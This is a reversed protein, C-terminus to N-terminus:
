EKPTCTLTVQYTKDIQIVCQTVTTSRGTDQLDYTLSASGDDNTKFDPPNMEPHWAEADQHQTVLAQDERAHFMSIMGALSRPDQKTKLVDIHKIFDQISETSNKKIVGNRAHVVFSPSIEREVHASLFYYPSVPQVKFTINEYAHYVSILHAHLKQCARGAEDKDINSWEMQKVANRCKEDIETENDQTPVATDPKAVDVNEQPKGSDSNHNGM